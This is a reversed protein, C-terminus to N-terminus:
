NRHKIASAIDVPIDCIRAVAANFAFFTIYPHKKIFEGAYQGFTKSEEEDDDKVGGSVAGLLEESLEMNKAVTIMKAFTELDEDSMTVGNQAFLNKIDEKTGQKAFEERFKPDNVLDLFEKTEFSFKEM